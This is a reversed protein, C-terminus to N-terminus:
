TTETTELIMPSQIVTLTVQKYPYKYTSFTLTKRREENTKNADSSITIDQNGYGEEYSVTIRDKTGDGWNVKFEM